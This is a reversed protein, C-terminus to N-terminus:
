IEAKEKQAILLQTQLYAVDRRRLRVTCSRAYHDLGRCNYCRIQNQNNGNGNVGARTAVVNGNGTQNVNQNAIGPVIILGNQNGVSVGAASIGCSGHVSNMSPDDHISPDPAPNISVFGSPVSNVSLHSEEQHYFSLLLHERMIPWVTRITPLPERCANMGSVKAVTHRVVELPNHSIPLLSKSRILWPSAEDETTEIQTAAHTLLIALGQPAVTPVSVLISDSRPHHASGIRHTRCVVRCKKKKNARSINEMIADKLLMEEKFAWPDKPDRV